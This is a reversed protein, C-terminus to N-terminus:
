KSKIENISIGQRQNEFEDEYEQRQKVFKDEYEQQQQQQQKQIQIQNPQRQIQSSKTHNWVPPIYTGVVDPEKENPM